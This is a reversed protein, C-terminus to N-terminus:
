LFLRGGVGASLPMEELELSASISRRGAPGPQGGRKHNNYGGSLFFDVPFLFPSNCHFLFIKLSHDILHIAGALPVGVGQFGDAFRGAHGVLPGGSVAFGELGDGVGGGFLEAKLESPTYAIVLRFVVVLLSTFVRQFRFVYM